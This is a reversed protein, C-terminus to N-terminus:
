PTVSKIRRAASLGQPGSLRKVSVLVEPIEQPSLSPRHTPSVNGVEDHAWLRSIRPTEVEQLGLSRDLSKIVGHHLTRRSYSVPEWSTLNSKGKVVNRSKQPVWMHYINNTNSWLTAAKAKGGGPVCVSVKWLACRRWSIHSFNYAL